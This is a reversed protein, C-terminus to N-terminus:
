KLFLMVMIDFVSLIVFSFSFALGDGRVFVPSFVQLLISVFWM